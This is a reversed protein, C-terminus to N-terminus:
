GVPEPRIYPLPARARGLEQHYIISQLISAGRGGYQKPWDIGVWGGSHLKRYWSVRQRWEADDEEAFSDLESTINRPANKELWARLEQRFVEDESNFNFDMSTDGQERSRM